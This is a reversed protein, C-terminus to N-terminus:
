LLEMTPNAARAFGCLVLYVAHGDLSLESELRAERMMKTPRAFMDHATAAISFDQAAAGAAIHIERLAADGLRTISATIDAQIIFVATLASINYKTNAYPLMRAVAAHLDGRWARMTATQGDIDYIGPAWGAERALWIVAHKLEQGAANAPRRRRIAHWTDVISVFTGAPVNSLVSSALGRDNGSTRQRMVALVGRRGVDHRRTISSGNPVAAPMRRAATGGSDFCRQFLHLRPFRQEMEPYPRPVALNSARSALREVDAPLRLGICFLPVDFPLACLPRGCERDPDAADGIGLLQALHHAQSQAHGAELVCPVHAFEGYEEAYRWARGLCVLAAQGDRLGSFAVPPLEQLGHFEPVYAYVRTTGGISQAFFYQLPYRGRSSPVAKHIPSESYPEYRLPGAVYKFLMSLGVLADLQAMGERSGSLWADLNCLERPLGSLPLQRVSAREVESQQRRMERPGVSFAPVALRELRQYGALVWAELQDARVPDTPTM